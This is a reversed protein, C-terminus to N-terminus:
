LSRESLPPASSSASWEMHQHCVHSSPPFSGPTYYPSYLPHRGPSAPLVGSLLSRPCSPAVFAASRWDGSDHATYRRRPDLPYLNSRYLMSGPRRSVCLRSPRHRTPQRPDRARLPSGTRHLDGFSAIYRNSVHTQAAEATSTEDRAAHAGRGPGPRPPRPRTGARRVAVPRPLVTNREANARIRCVNWVYRAYPERPARPRSSDSYRSPDVLKFRFPREVRSPDVRTQSRIIRITVPSPRFRSLWVSVLRGRGTGRQSHVIALVSVSEVKRGASSDYLIM